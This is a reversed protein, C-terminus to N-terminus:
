SASSGSVPSQSSSSSGFNYSGSHGLYNSSSSQDSSSSPTSTGSDTTQSSSAHVANNAAVGCLTIFAGIATMMTWHKLTKVIAQAQVKPM